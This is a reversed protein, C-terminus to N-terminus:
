DLFFAELADESFVIKYGAKTSLTLLVLFTSNFLCPLYYFQYFNLHQSNGTSSLFLLEFLM